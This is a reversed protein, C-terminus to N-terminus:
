APEDLFPWAERMSCAFCARSGQERELADLLATVLSHYFTWGPGRVDAPRGLSAVVEVVRFFGHTVWEVEEHDLERHWVFEPAEAAVRDWEDHFAEFRDLLDRDIVAAGRPDVVLQQLQERALGTYATVSESPLPGLAVIVTSVM